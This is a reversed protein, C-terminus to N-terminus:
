TAMMPASNSISSGGSRASCIRARAPLSVRAACWHGPRIEGALRGCSDGRGDLMLWLSFLGGRGALGVVGVQDQGIGDLDAGVGPGPGGGGGRQGLTTQQRDPAVVPALGLAQGSLGKGYQLGPLQVVVDHAREHIRHCGTGGQVAAVQRGALLKRPGRRRGSSV